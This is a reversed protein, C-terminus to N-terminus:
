DIECHVRGGERGPPIQRELHVETWLRNIGCCLLLFLSIPTQLHAVLQLPLPLLPPKLLGLAPVAVQLPLLTWSHHHHHHHCRSDSFASAHSLASAIYGDSGGGDAQVWDQYVIYRSGDGWHGSGCCDVICVDVAMEWVAGVAVAVEAM